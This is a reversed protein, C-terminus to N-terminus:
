FSPRWHWMDPKGYVAYIYTHMCAASLLLDLYAGHLYSLTLVPQATSNHCSKVMCVSELISYMSVNNVVAYPLYRKSFISLCSVAILVHMLTIHYLCEAM